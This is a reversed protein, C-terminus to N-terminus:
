QKKESVPASKWQIFTKGQFERKEIQPYVTRTGYDTNCKIPKGNILFNIQEDSLKTKYITFQMGCQCYFYGMPVPQSCNPCICRIEQETTKVPSQKKAPAPKEPLSVSYKATYDTPNKKNKELFYEAYEKMKLDSLESIRSNRNIKKIYSVLNDARVIHNRIEDPAKSYDLISNENAFVVLPFCIKRIKPFLKGLVEIHIRNQEIPNRISQQTNDKQLIIFQGNEDVTIKSSYSFNKCEIVFINKRTIVLFDIQSKTDDDYEFYVDHLIYMPMGSNKLYYKVQNEGYYGSKIKLIDDEIQQRFDSYQKQLLLNELKEIQGNDSSDKFVVPKDLNNKSFLSGFLGM